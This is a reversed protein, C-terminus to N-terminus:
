ESNLDISKLLLLDNLFPINIDITMIFILSQQNLLSQQFVVKSYSRNYLKDAQSKDKMFSKILQVFKNSNNKFHIKNVLMTKMNFINYNSSYFTLTSWLVPISDECESPDEPYRLLRIMFIFDHFQEVFSKFYRVLGSNLLKCVDLATSVHVFDNDIYFTPDNYRVNNSGKLINITEHRSCIVFSAWVSFLKKDAGCACDAATPVWDDSHDLYMQTEVLHTIEDISSPCCAEKKRKVELEREAKWLHCVKNIEIPKFEPESDCRVMSFLLKMANPIIGPKDPTGFFTYKKGSCKPGSAVITASKGNVANVIHKRVANEFVYNQSSDSKFIKPLKSKNTDESQEILDVATDMITDTFMESPKIRIYTEIKCNPSSTSPSQNTGMDEM